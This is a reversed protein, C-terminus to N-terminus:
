YRGVPLQGTRRYRLHQLEWNDWYQFMDPVRPLLEFVDHTVTHAKAKDATSVQASRSGRMRCM